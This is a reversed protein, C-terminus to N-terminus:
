ASLGEDMLITTGHMAKVRGDALFLIAEAMETAPSYVRPSATALRKRAMIEESQRDAENLPTATNGPAIANIAVDFPALDLALARTMMVIGAKATSYLPYQASGKYAAVSAVNVIRGSRRSKMAPAVAQITFFTGKLHTDILRDFQEETTQGLPTPLYVGASNVLIDVPGLARVVEEVARSIDAPSRVDMKVPLAHGGKRAIEEVVREAKRIDSGSAVAVRAGEAAFLEATSQGIGSSGGTVLAVKGSLRMFKM